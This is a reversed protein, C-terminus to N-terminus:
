INVELYWDEMSLPTCEIQYESNKIFDELTQELPKTIKATAGNVQPRWHSLEKFYESQELPVDASIKVHSISSKLDEVDYQISIKGKKLLAVKNAVRELDSIIHSSFIITAGAECSLDIIEAIFQRRMKPDLHAVPEDLVLFKPRTSLAQIVHLMQTQGGSLDGVKKLPNINWRQCLDVCYSKDFHFFFSGLYNLFEKVRMWEFGTTTQSVFAIKGRQEQSIKSWPQEWLKLEGSNIDRLNMISELLTSKGSGNEGLLAIIDGEKVQWNLSNLVTHNQYSKTMNKISLITQKM